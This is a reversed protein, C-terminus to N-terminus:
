IRFFFSSGLSTKLLIIINIANIWQVEVLRMVSLLINVSSGLSTKLLIIINLANIWQMEVLPMASLLINVSSGLSTKLIRYQRYTCYLCWCIIYMYKYVYKYM